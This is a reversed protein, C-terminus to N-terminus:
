HEENLPAAMMDHEDAAPLFLASKRNSFPTSIKKIAQLTLLSAPKLMLM